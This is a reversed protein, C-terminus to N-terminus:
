FYSIHFLLVFEILCLSNLGVPNFLLSEPVTSRLGFGSTAGMPSIGIARDLVGFITLLPTYIPTTVTRIPNTGLNRSYVLRDSVILDRLRM